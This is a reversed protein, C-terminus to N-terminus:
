KKKKKKKKKFVFESRTRVFEGAKHGVMGTKSVDLKAFSKGDHVWVVEGILSPTLTSFREIVTKKKVIKKRMFPGKWGSRSM